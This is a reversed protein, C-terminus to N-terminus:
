NGREMEAKMRELRVEDVWVPAKRAAKEQLQEMREQRRRFLLASVVEDRAENLERVRPPRRDTVKVLHYGYDTRVPGAIGGTELGRAVGELESLLQGPRFFGLDGGRPASDAQSYRRALEAFEEGEGVRRLLSRALDAAAGEEEPPERLLIHSVRVLEPVAFDGANERWFEEIEREGPAPLASFEEELFLDVLLRERVEALARRFRDTEEIGAVRALGVLKKEEIMGQLVLEPSVPETESFAQWVRRLQEAIIWEDGVVALIDKQRDRRPRLSLYVAAALVALSLIVLLYSKKM